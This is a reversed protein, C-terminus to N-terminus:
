FHEVGKVLQTFVRILQFCLDRKMDPAWWKYKIMHVKPNTLEVLEVFVLSMASFMLKTLARTGKELSEKQWCTGINEHVRGAGNVM